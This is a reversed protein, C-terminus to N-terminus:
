HPRLRNHHATEESLGYLLTGRSEFKLIKLKSEAEVEEAIPESCSLPLFIM